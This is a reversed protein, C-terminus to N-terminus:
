PAVSKIIDTPAGVYMISREYATLTISGNQNRYVEVKIGMDVEKGGITRFAVRRIKHNYGLVIWDNPHATDQYVSAYRENGLTGGPRRENANISMSPAFIEEALSYDVAHLLMKPASVGYFTNTETKQFSALINIAKKFEDRTLSASLKNTYNWSNPRNVADDVPNLGLPKQWEHTPAQLNALLEIVDNRRKTVIKELLLDIENSIGQTATKLRMIDEKSAVANFLASSDIGYASLKQHPITISIKKENPFTWEHTTYNRDVLNADHVNGAVNGYDDVTSLINGDKGIFEFHTESNTYSVNGESLLDIVDNKGEKLGTIIQKTALGELIEKVVAM